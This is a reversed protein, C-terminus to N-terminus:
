RQNAKVCLQRNTASNWKEAHPNATANLDEIYFKNDEFLIRAHIRSISFDNIMFDVENKKRGILFPYTIIKILNEGAM